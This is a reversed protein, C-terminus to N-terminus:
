EKETTEDALPRLPEATSAVVPEPIPAQANARERRDVDNLYQAAADIASYTPNMAFRSRPNLDRLLGTVFKLEKKLRDRCVEAAEAPVYRVCRGVKTMRAAREDLDVCLPTGERTGHSDGDKLIVFVDPETM